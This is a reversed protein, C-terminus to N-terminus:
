AGLQFQGVVGLLTAIVSYCVLSSSRPNKLSPRNVLRVTAEGFAGRVFVEHTNHKTKPDAILRVVTRQLGLGALSITVAVNLNQPFHRVAQEATGEFILTAGRLGELDIGQERVYPTNLATPPKTTTLTCEDLGGIAAAKIVDLGGIAGSPVLLRRGHREARQMLGSLLVGDALAGVSVVMLDTGSDLILDGYARVADASAAEIILSPELELVASVNPCVACNAETAVRRAAEPNLEDTLGILQLEPMAGSAIAAAVTSGISGCGILGLRLVRPNQFRRERSEVAIASM